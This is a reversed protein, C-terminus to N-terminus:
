HVQSAALGLLVGLLVGGVGVMVTMSHDPAGVNMKAENLQLITDTLDLKCKECENRYIRLNHVQEGDFCDTDAKAMPLATLLMSMVVLIGM